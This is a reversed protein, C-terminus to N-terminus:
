KHYQPKNCFREDGNCHKRHSAVRSEEVSWGILALRQLELAEGLSLDISWHSEPDYGVMHDPVLDLIETRLFKNM